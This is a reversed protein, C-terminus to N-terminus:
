FSGRLYGTPLDIRQSVWRCLVQGQPGPADGVYWFGMTIWAPLRAELPNGPGSNTMIPHLPPTLTNWDEPPYRFLWYRSALLKAPNVAGPIEDHSIMQWSLCSVRPNDATVFRQDIGRSLFPVNWLTNFCPASVDYEDGYYFFSGLDLAPIPVPNGQFDQGMIWNLSGPECLWATLLVNRIVLYDKLSSLQGYGSSDELWFPPLAPPKSPVVTLLFPVDYAGRLRQLWISANLTQVLTDLDPKPIPRPVGNPDDVSKPIGAGALNCALPVYKGMTERCEELDDGLCELRINPCELGIDLYELSTKGPEEYRLLVGRRGDFSIEVLFDGANEATLPGSGTVPLLEALKQTVPDKLTEQAASLVTPDAWDVRLPESPVGQFQFDTFGDGDRDTILYHIVADRVQALPVQVTQLRDMETQDPDVHLSYSVRSPRGNRNVGVYVFGTPEGYFAYMEAMDARAFAQKLDAEMVAMSARIGEMADMSAQSGQVTRIVGSFLTMVGAMLTVFIAIAVLLEVATFGGRGAGSRRVKGNPSM